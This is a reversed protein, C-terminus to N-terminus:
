VCLVHSNNLKLLDFMKFGDLGCISIYKSITFM